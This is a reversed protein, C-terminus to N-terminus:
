QLLASDPRGRGLFLHLSSADQFQDVNILGRCYERRHTLGAQRYLLQWADQAVGGTVLSPNDWLLCSPSDSPLYMQTVGYAVSCAVCTM